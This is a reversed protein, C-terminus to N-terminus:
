EGQPKGQSKGQLKMQTAWEKVLARRYKISGRKLGEALPLIKRPIFLGKLKRALERQYHSTSKMSNSEIFAWPVAGYEDDPVPVVLAQGVGELASLEREILHPTVNEGGCQFIDDRRGLVQLCERDDWLGLDETAFMGKPGETSVKPASPNKAGVERYHLFKGKGGVHILGEPDISIKRGPLPRGSSLPTDGPKQVAVAGMMESLGYSFSIPLRAKICERHCSLGLTGGGVLILDFPKLLSLLGKQQLRFLQTPVLSVMNAGHDTLTKVDCNKSLVYHGGEFFPRFFSMLGGVHHLPLTQGSSLRPLHFHAKLGRASEELNKWHHVVGKPKGGSGSTLVVWRSDEESISLSLEPDPEMTTKAPEDREREFTSIVADLSFDRKMKGVQDPSLHDALLVAECDQGLLALFNALFCVPDGGMLGVRKEGLHKKQLTSARQAILKLFNVSSLSEDGCFLNRDEKLFSSLSFRSM